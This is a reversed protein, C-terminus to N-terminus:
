ICGNSSDTPSQGPAFAPNKVPPALPKGGATGATGSSIVLRHVMASGAGDTLQYTGTLLKLRLTASSGPGVRQTRVGLKTPIGSLGPGKIMLMHSKKGHNVVVLAVDFTALQSTFAGPAVAFSSDTFTVRVEAALAQRKVAGFASGALVLGVVALLASALALKRKNEM